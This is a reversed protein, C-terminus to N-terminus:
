CHGLSREAGCIDQRATKVLRAAAMGESHGAAFHQSQHIRQFLRANPEREGPMFVGGAEDGFTHVVAIAGRRDQHRRQPGARQVRDVHHGIRMLVPHRHHKQGATDIGVLREAIGMLHQIVLRHEPRHGLGTEAEGGAAGVEDGVARHAFRQRRAGARDMDVHRDAHGIGPDCGRLRAAADRGARGRRLAGVQGAGLAPQGARRARQRNDPQVHQAAVATAHQTGEQFMEGNGEDGGVLGLTHDGLIM